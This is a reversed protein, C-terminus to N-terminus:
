VTHGIGDVVVVGNDGEGVVGHLSQLQETSICNQHLALLSLVGDQDHQSIVVQIIAASTDVTHDSMVETDLVTIHNCNM